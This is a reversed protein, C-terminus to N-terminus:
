TGLKMKKKMYIYLLRLVKHISFDTRATHEATGIHYMLTWMHMLRNKLEEIKEM